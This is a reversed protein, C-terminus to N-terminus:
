LKLFWYILNILVNALAFSFTTIIIGIILYGPISNLNQVTLDTPLPKINVSHRSKRLLINAGIGLTVLAYLKYIMGRIMRFQFLANESRIYGSPRLSWGEPADPFFELILFSIILCIGPGYAILCGFTSCSIRRINKM